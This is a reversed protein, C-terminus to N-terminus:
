YSFSHVAANNQLFQASALWSLGLLLKGIIGFLHPREM